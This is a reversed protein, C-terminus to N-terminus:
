RPASMRRAIVVAAGSVAALLAAGAMGAGLGARGSMLGMLPPYVVSGAIAAATLTGSVAAARHPVLMGAVTMIMPYVPGFAFGTAMFLAIRLPGPPGAIAAALALASALGCFAAFSVPHLRDAIRSAVLRGAALGAWFLGLALAAVSMPEEALYAVLWSTVGAEAAVYCAIGIGLTALALRVSLGIPPRSRGAPPSASTVRQRPPVAGVRRLPIALLLGAVATAAAVPRWSIGAEALVGIALPAALAGISYFLHLRSLGGGRGTASLDMVVSNVLADVAGAGAGALGAGVVFIGWTPAASVTALGVTILLGTAPLVIRRGILDAILGASMAGTAFMLAFVLYVLGFEADTRSFGAQIVRLYSPVLLATWGILTFSAYSVAFVGRPLVAPAGASTM